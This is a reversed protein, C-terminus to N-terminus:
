KKITHFIGMAHKLGKKAWGVTFGFAIFIRLLTPFKSCRYYGSCRRLLCCINSHNCRVQFVQMLFFPFEKNPVTEDGPCLQKWETGRPSANMKILLYCPQFNFVIQILHRLSKATSQWVPFLQRLHNVTICLAVPLVHHLVPGIKLGYHTFIM